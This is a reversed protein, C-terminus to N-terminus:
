GIIKISKKKAKKAFKFDPDLGLAKDYSELAEQLKGLKKLM